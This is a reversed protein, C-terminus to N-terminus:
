ARPAYVAVPESIGRVPIEGMHDFAGVDLLAVTSAGVLIDTDHEKNLAELRAAVNVTDGYVTYTQRGGGGVSGAVVSGSCVGVRTSLSTGEFQRRRTLERIDIAAAVANAAHDRDELPVNFTALVADGMFQTIVGNRATVLRSVEDFYANLIAVIGSAGTRETLATFGVIDAFLVTAPRQVPALVGRGHILAEAIAKPVYTGFVETIARREEDLELQRRVTRRARAMVVAILIAAVLLAVAEQIRSNTGVFNPSLFVELFLETSPAEGIDSWNFRVPMDRIAWAFAGLWSAGGAVGAWLVAGSSFSFAAIALVVFYFPFFPARFIMVQPVDISDYLPQTAMLASLIGIDVAIFLYKLWPRDFRSGILAYHLAGILALGAFAIGYALAQDSALGRSTLIWIGILVIAAFRGKIALRLGTREAELYTQSLDPPAATLESM